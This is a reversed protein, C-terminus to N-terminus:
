LTINQNGLVTKTGVQEGIKSDYNNWTNSISDARKITEEVIDAKAVESLLIVSLVEKACAVAIGAAYSQWKKNKHSDAYDCIGRIVLYPFSNMLGAAEMEFCLVGGLEVSVRDREAGDRIVQNGLVITGYHLIAGQVRLERSVLKDKNCNDCIAGGEYNYKTEFLINLDATERRFKPLGNFKAFFELLRSRERFYNAYLNAITNLLITLPTNLSGTRQFGSPTAKGSNYQVVEGYMDLPRSIVVDGLWINVEESSVGGGIGIILGFRISTFASKM